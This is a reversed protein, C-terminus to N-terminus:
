VLSSKKNKVRKQNRISLVLLFNFVFKSKKSQKTENENEGNLIQWKKEYFNECVGCVSKLLFIM